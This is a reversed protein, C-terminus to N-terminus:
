VAPFGRYSSQAINSSPAHGSGSSDQVEPTSRAGQLVPFTSPDNPDQLVLVTSIHVYVRRLALPSMSVRVYFKMNTTTGSTLPQLPTGTDSGPTRDDSMSPQQVCNAVLASKAQRHKRRRWIWIALGAAVVAAIGGIIGGVIAGVNSSSSNSSGILTGPGIEPTDKSFYKHSSRPFFPSLLFIGVASPIANTPKGFEMKRPNITLVHWTLFHAVFQSAQSVGSPYMREPLFLTPSATATLSVLLDEAVATLKFECYAVRFIRVTGRIIRGGLLLYALCLYVLRLLSLVMDSRGRSM